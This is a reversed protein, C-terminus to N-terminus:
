IGNGQPSYEAPSCVIRGPVATVALSGVDVWDVFEYQITLQNNGDLTEMFRCPVGRSLFNERFWGSGHVQLGPVDMVLFRSNLRSKRPVVARAEPSAKGAEGPSRVSVGTDVIRNWAGPRDQGPQM